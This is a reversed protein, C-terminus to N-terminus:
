LVTVGSSHVYFHVHYCLFSLHSILVIPLTLTMAVLTPTCALTLVLIICFLSIPRPGHLPLRTNGWHPLQLVGTAATDSCETPHLPFHCIADARLGNVSNVPQMTRGIKEM